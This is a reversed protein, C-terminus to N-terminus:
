IIADETEWISRDDAFLMARALAVIAAVVPDIRGKSNKRSPKINDNADRWIAVTGAAWNVVPHDGHRVAGKCVLREFEKSAASMGGVSQSVKVVNLGDRDQLDSILGAANWPDFGIEQIVFRDADENVQARVADYDTVDGDTTMLYGRRAWESYM